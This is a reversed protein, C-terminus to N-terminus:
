IELLIINKEMETEKEMQINVKMNYLKIIIINKEKEMKKGTHIIEKLYYYIMNINMLKEKEM